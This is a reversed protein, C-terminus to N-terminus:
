FYWQLSAYVFPNRDFEEFDSSHPAGELVLGYFVGLSLDVNQLPNYKLAPVLMVGYGQFDCVTFLDARLLPTIDYGLVIGAYHQNYTLFQDALLHFNHERIGNVISEEFTKKLSHHYNMGNQNYFYEILFYLGSAFTYEYGAGGILFEKGSDPVNYLASGRLMGDLFNTSVDVGGVLRRSIRGGLAAIETEVVTTKLRGLVNTNRYSLAGRGNLDDNVRKHDIIIAIETKDSPYYELRIADTGKQEEPGEISTPSIPNLIDLPNWLRASGFRIQQRGATLTFDGLVLKAYARHIRVRYYLRKGYWPEWSLHALDNYQSYRWFSDFERSKLYTGAIIENDCDVHVLLRDSLNLEPSLRLRSLNAILDRHTGSESYNRARYYAALDKLSGKLSLRNKESPSTEGSEQVPEEGEPKEQASLNQASLIFIFTLVAIVGLLIHIHMPTRKMAAETGVPM